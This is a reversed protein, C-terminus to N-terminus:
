KHSCFTLNERVWQVTKREITLGDKIWDAIDTAIDDQWRPDDVITAVVCGCKTIAVYAM